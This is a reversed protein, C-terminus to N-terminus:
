EVNALVVINGKPKVELFGGRIQFTTEANNDGMLNDHAGIGIRLLGSVLPVLLPIHNDLITLEGVATKATLKKVDGDFVTKDLTHIAIHM